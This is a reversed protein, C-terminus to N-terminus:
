NSKFKFVKSSIDSKGGGPLKELAGAGAGVGFGFWCGALIDAGAAGVDLKV